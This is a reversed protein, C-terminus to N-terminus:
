QVEMRTKVITVPCLAAAAVARTFGGALATMGMSLKEDPSSSNQMKKLGYLVRDLLSFYLGAGFGIRICTASTGRWLGKLGDKQVIGSIISRASISAHQATKSSAQLHTRVVDFPQLASSTVIGSLAGAFFTKAGRNKNAHTDANSM